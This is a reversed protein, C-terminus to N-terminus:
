LSGALLAADRQVRALMCMLGKSPTCSLSPTLGQNLQSGWLSRRVLAIPLLAQETVRGRIPLFLLGRILYLHLLHLHLVIRVWWFYVSFNSGVLLVIRVWWFYVSFNSGELLVIRVWWFYVSFNSGVLLVIRVWWFYLIKRGWWFYTALFLVGGFTCLGWWFYMSIESGVLHEM